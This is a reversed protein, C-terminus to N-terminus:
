LQDRINKERRYLRIGICVAVASVIFTLGKNRLSHEQVYRM